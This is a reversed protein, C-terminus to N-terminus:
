HVAIVLATMGAMFNQVVSFWTGFSKERAVNSLEKFRELYWIEALNMWVDLFLIVGEAALCSVLAWLVLRDLNLSLNLTEKNELM